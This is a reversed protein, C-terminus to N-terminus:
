HEKILEEIHNECAFNSAILSLGVVCLLLAITMLWYSLVVLRRHPRYFTGEETVPPPPREDQPIFTFMFFTVFTSILNSITFCAFAAARIGLCEVLDFVAVILLGNLTLYVNAFNAVKMGTEYISFTGEIEPHHRLCIV